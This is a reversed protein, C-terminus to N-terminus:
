MGDPYPAAHSQVGSDQTSGSAAGKAKNAQARSLRENMAAVSKLVNSPASKFVELNARPRVCFSRIPEFERNEGEVAKPCPSTGDMWEDLSGFEILDVNISHTAHDLFRDGNELTGEQINQRSKNYEEIFRLALAVPRASRRGMAEVIHSGVLVIPLDLTISGTATRRSPRDLIREGNKRISYGVPTGMRFLIRPAKDDEVDLCYTSLGPLNYGVEHCHHAYALLFNAFNAGIENPSMGRYQEHVRGNEDLLARTFSPHEFPMITRIATNKRNMIAQRQRDNANELTPIDGPNFTVRVDPDGGDAPWLISENRTMIPSHGITISM